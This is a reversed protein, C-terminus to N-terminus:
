PRDGIATPPAAPRPIGDPAQAAEPARGADPARAADLAAILDHAGAPDLRRLIAGSGVVVWDGVVADPLLLTSAHRRRGATEVVADGAAVAVIRGPYSICM